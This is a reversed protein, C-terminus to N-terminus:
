HCVSVSIKIYQLSLQAFDGCTYFLFLPKYLLLFAILLFNDTNQYLRQWACQCPVVYIRRMEPMSELLFSIM